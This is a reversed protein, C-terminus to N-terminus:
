QIDTGFLTAENRIYNIIGNFRFMCHIEDLQNEVMFVINFITAGCRICYCEKKYATIGAMWHTHLDICPRSAFFQFRTHMAPPLTSIYLEYQM